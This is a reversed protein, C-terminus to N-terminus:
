IKRRKGKRLRDFILINKHMKYRNKLSVAGIGTGNKLFKREFLLSIRGNEIISLFTEKKVNKYFANDEFAM